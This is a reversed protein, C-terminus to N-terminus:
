HRVADLLAYLRQSPPWLQTIEARFHVAAVALGALLLISATWAAWAHGGAPPVAEDPPFSPPPAIRPEAVLPAAPARPPPPPPPPRAPPAPPEFTWEQACCACRLRRVGAGLRDDPVDYAAHCSPCVLRM